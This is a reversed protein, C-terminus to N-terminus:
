GKEKDLRQLDSDALRRLYSGTPYCHNNGSRDIIEGGNLNYTKM